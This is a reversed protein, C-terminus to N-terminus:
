VLAQYYTDFFLICCSQKKEEHLEMFFRDGYHISYSISYFLICWFYRRRHSWYKSIIIAPLNEGSFIRYIVVILALALAGFAIASYVKNKSGREKNLADIIPILLAVSGLIITVLAPTSFIDIM